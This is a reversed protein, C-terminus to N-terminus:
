PLSELYPRMVNAVRCVTAARWLDDMTVRKQGVADRLAELAVDLGIKNRFKFCDAVTKAVNTVKVAVGDVLHTEVGFDLAQGSFRHVRLAPSSIRPRRAKAGIAIWVEFPTQTTLGHFQLATLLCFVASPARQAVEILSANENPAYSPLAYLGRSLRQLKGANVWRSLQM